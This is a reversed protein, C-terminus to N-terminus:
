RASVDEITADFTERLVRVHPDNAISAEADRQRQEAEAGRQQSPTQLQEAHEIRVDVRIDGGLHATLAGQLTDIHRRQALREFQPAIVLEVVGNDFRALASNRALERPLGGLTLSEITSTWDLATTAATAVPVQAAPQPECAPPETLDSPPVDLPAVADAARGPGVVTPAAVTPATRQAATGAERVGPRQVPAALNLASPSAPRFALMRLLVMEFGSEPDPAHPLDRRGLLAIQYYLQCEDGPVRAALARVREDSEVEAAAEDLAQAVAMRRLLALLEGLVQAYDPAYTALERSAAILARADGEFLIELLKLVRDQDITGLMRAVEVTEIRGGGHAIAQDLLSLADRVSGAAAQAIQALAPREYAVGEADLVKALHESLPGVGLRTLNFQLCRSLM